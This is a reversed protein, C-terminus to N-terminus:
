CASNRLSRSVADKFRGECRSMMRDFIVQDEEEHRALSLYLRADEDKAYVIWEGTLADRAARRAFAGITMEHTVRRTTMEDLEAGDELIANIIGTEERRQIENSLNKSIFGAQFFHAHWLGQLPPRRFPKEQVRLGRSPIELAQLVDFVAHFDLTRTRIAFVLQDVLLRSLRRRVVCALGAHTELFRRGAEESAKPPCWVSDTM